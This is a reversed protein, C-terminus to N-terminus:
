FAWVDGKATALGGQDIAEPAMWRLTSGASFKHVADVSPFSASGFDIIKPRRDQSILVNKGKLDGHFVRQDHLYSIGDAI